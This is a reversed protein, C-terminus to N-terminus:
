GLKKLVVMRMDMKMDQYDIYKDVMKIWDRFNLLVSDLVHELKKSKWVWICLLGGIKMEDKVRNLFSIEKEKDRPYFHLM